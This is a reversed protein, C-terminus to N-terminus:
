FFFFVMTGFTADENPFFFRSCNEVLLIKMERTKLLSSGRDSIRESDRSIWPCFFFFASSSKGSRTNSTTTHRLLKIKVLATRSEAPKPLGSLGYKCNWSLILVLMKLGRTAYVNLLSTFLVTRKINERKLSFFLCQVIFAFYSLLFFFLLLLGVSRKKQNAHAKM